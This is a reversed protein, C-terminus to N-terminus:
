AHGRPRRRPRIRPRSPAPGAPPTSHDVHSDRAEDFDDDDDLALADFAGLDAEAEPDDAGARGLAGPSGLAAQRQFTAAGTRVGRITSATSVFVDEAEQQVVGLLANFENLRKETVKVAEMLRQNATAITQNVQQVDVRISTTVYDLNDAITSVHRMIPNIDGYIRDLLENVKRHSNRFNWAAPVLFVTLVLISITMLGSAIGTVQDFWSRTAQVEKTVITDPFVAAQQAAQQATQLLWTGADVLWLSM